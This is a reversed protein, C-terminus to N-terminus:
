VFRPQHLGGVNLSAAQREFQVFHFPLIILGKCDLIDQLKWKWYETWM